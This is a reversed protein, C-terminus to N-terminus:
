PKCVKCAKYGQKEAEAKSALAVKNEAKMKGAHQCDAKHFTKSDKNGVLGAAAPAAKAPEAPKAAPKAPEAAKAPPTAPKKTDKPAQAQLPLVLASCFLLALTLSKM